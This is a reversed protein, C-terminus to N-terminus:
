FMQLLYSSSCQFVFMLKCGSSPESSSHSSNSVHDTCTSCFPNQVLYNKLLIYFDCFVTVVTVVCLRIEALFLNMVFEVHFIQIQILIYM